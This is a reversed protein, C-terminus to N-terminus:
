AGEGGLDGAPAGERDNRVRVGALRRERLLQEEVAARDMERARDLRSPVRAAVRRAVPHLELALAADRDRRAHELKRVRAMVHVEEVRRTVVIKRLVRVARERRGIGGHHEDVARLADLRLRDLEELDAAHPPDRDDREHVLEVACALIREVEHVLDLANEADRAVGHRPRDAGPRIELADVVAPPLRQQFVFSSIRRFSLPDGRNLDGGEVIRREDLREARGCVRREHFLEFEELGSVGEILRREQRSPDRGDEEAARAVVEADLGEQLAKELESGRRQGALRRRAEHVRELRLERAEDELDLRVHIGRVAVADREHPDHRPLERAAHFNQVRARAPRQLERFRELEERLLSREDLLGPGAVNEPEPVRAVETDAVREGLSRADLELSNRAERGLEEVADDHEVGRFPFLELLAEVLERLFAGNLDEVVGLAHLPVGDQSGDADQLELDDLVPEPRFVSRFDGVRPERERERAPDLALVEVAPLEVVRRADRAEDVEFAPRENEELALPM